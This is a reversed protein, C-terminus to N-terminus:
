PVLELQAIMEVDIAEEWRHEGFVYRGRKAVMPSQTIRDELIAGYREPQRQMEAVWKNHENLRWANFAAVTVAPMTFSYNGARDKICHSRRLFGVGTIMEQRCDDGNAISLEYPEANRRLEAEYSGTHDHVNFWTSGQYSCTWKFTPQM